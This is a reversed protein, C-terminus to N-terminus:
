VIFGIADAPFISIGFIVAHNVPLSTDIHLARFENITKTPFM